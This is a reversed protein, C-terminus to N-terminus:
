SSIPPAEPAKPASPGPPNSSDPSAPRTALFIALWMLVPFGREGFKGLNSAQDLFSRQGDTFHLALSEGARGSAYALQAYLEIQVLTYAYLLVLSVAIWVVRRRLPVNVLTACLLSLLLVVNFHVDARLTFFDGHSKSFIFALDGPGAAHDQEEYAHVVKPPLQTLEQVDITLRSPEAIPTVADLGIAIARGYWRGGWVWLGAFLAFFVFFRVSLLLLKRGPADSM